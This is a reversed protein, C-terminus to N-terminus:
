GKKTPLLQSELQKLTERHWQLSGELKPNKSYSEVIKLFELFHEMAKKKENCLVAAQAAGGYIRDPSSVGYLASSQNNSIIAQEFASLAGKFDQLRYLKDEGESRLLPAQHSAPIKILAEARIERAKEYNNDKELRKIKFEYNIVKMPTGVWPLLEFVKYILHFINKM